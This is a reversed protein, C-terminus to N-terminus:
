LAAPARWWEREGLSMDYLNKGIDWYAAWQNYMFIYLGLLHFAPVWRGAGLAWRGLSAQEWGRLGRCAMVIAREYRM